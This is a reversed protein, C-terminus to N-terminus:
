GDCLYEKVLDKFTNFVGEIDFVKGFISFKKSEEEVVLRLNKLTLNGNRVYVMLNDIIYNVYMLIYFDGGHDGIYNNNVLEEGIFYVKYYLDLEFPRYEDLCVMKSYGNFIPKVLRKRGNEDVIM